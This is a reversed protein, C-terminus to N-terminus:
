HQWNIETATVDGILVDDFSSPQVSQYESVPIKVAMIEARLQPYLPQLSPEAYGQPFVPEGTKLEYKDSAGVTHLLEHTLIINNYKTVIPSAYANVVGLLGKQLGLSHDLKRKKGPDYYVVFMQIDAPPAEYRDPIKWAWYRIKLSWWIVGFMNRDAPPQPPLENIEPGLKVKVPTKLDLKYKQAQQQMFLETPKFHREQLRAIYDRTVERGDGNVPYVVVWLPTHWNTSREKAHWANLAVFLLACLLILIRIKKFM